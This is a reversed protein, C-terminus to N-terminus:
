WHVWATWFRRGGSGARAARGLMWIQHDARVRGSHGIPIRSAPRRSACGPGRRDVFAVVVAAAAGAVAVAAVAVAAVAAAAAAAAAANHPKVIPILEYVAERLKDFPPVPHFSSTQTNLYPPFLCGM